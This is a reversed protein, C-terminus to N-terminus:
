DKKRHDIDHIKGRVQQLRTETRQMEASEEATKEQSSMFRGMKQMLQSEEDILGLRLTEDDQSIKDMM